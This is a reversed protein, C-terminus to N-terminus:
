YSPLATAPMVVPIERLRYTISPGSHVTSSVLFYGMCEANVIGTGGHSTPLERGDLLDLALMVSGDAILPLWTSADETFEHVDFRDAIEQQSEISVSVGLFTSIFVVRGLNDALFDAFAEGGGSTIGVVETYTPVSDIVGNEAGAECAGRLWWGGLFALGVLLLAGMSFARFSPSKALEAM